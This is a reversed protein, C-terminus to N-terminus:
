TTVALGVAGRGKKSALERIFRIFDAPESGEPCNFWRGDRYCILKNEIVVSCSKKLGLADAADTSKLLLELGEKSHVCKDVQSRNWVKGVQEACDQVLKRGFRSDDIIPKKNNALGYANQCQVFKWWTPVGKLDLDKWYKQACLQQINEVCEQPGHKCNITVSQSGNYTKNAIYVLEINVLNGVQDLVQDFVQECVKADPCRSMVGLKVSVKSANLEAGLVVRLGLVATFLLTVTFHM